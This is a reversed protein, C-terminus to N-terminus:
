IFHCIIIVLYIYKKTRKKLNIKAEDELVKWWWM